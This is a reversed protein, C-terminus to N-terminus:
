ATPDKCPSLEKRRKRRWCMVCYAAHQLEGRYLLCNCCRATGDACIAGCVLCIVLDCGRGAYKSKLDMLQEAAVVDRAPLVLRAATAM